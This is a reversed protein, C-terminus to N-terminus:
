FKGGAGGGSSHGGGYHGGSRHGGGGSGWGGSSSGSSKKLKDTEHEEDIKEGCNPCEYHWIDLGKKTYTAPIVHEMKRLITKKNCKPCRPALWIELLQWLLYLIAIWMGWYMGHSSVDKPRWGLLLEATTEEDCLKEEAFRLGAIIGEGWEGDALLPQMHDYLMESCDYDTFVRELGEGTRAQMDRTGRAIFLLLGNSTERDGIGWTNYIDMTLYFADTRYEDVSDIMVVAIEVETLRLIRACIANITDVEEPTLLGDPDSVNNYADEARPQPIDTAAAYRSAMLGVSLLLSLILFQLRRM